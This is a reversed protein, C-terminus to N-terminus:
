KSVLKNQDNSWMQYLACCLGKILMPSLPRQDQAYANARKAINAQNMGPLKLYQWFWVGMDSLFPLMSGRDPFLLQRVSKPRCKTDSVERRKQIGLWVLNHLVSWYIVMFLPEVGWSELMSNSCRLTSSVGSSMADFLLTAVHQQIHLQDQITHFCAIGCKGLIRHMYTHWTSLEDSVYGKMGLVSLQVCMRHWALQVDGSCWM